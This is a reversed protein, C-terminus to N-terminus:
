QPFEELLGESIAGYVIKTALRREVEKKAEAAVAGAAAEGRERVVAAAEKQGANVIASEFDTFGLEKAARGGLAGLVGTGIGSAVASVGGRGSLLRDASEQRASEAASGAQVLGEGGGGAVGALRPVVAAVGRGAFGGAFMSPVSEVVSQLAVSPNEYISKVTGLFGEARQVNEFARKQEPTYLSQLYEDTAKPDWGTYDEIVKGAYGGTAIDAIGLIAEPVDHVGKIASVGLAAARRYWPSPEPEPEPQDFQDFWSGGTTRPQTAGSSPAPQEFQDFWSKQPM